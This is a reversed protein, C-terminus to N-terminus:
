TAGTLCWAGLLNLLHLSILRGNWAQYLLTFSIRPKVIIASFHCGTSYLTSIECVLSASCFTTNSHRSFIHQPNNERALYCHSFAAALQRFHLHVKLHAASTLLWRWRLMLTHLHPIYKVCVSKLAKATWIIFSVYRIGKIQAISHHSIRSLASIVQFVRLFLWKRM